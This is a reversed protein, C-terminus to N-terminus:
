LVVYIIRICKYLGNCKTNSDNETPSQALEEGNDEDVQLEESSSKDSDSCSEDSDGSHTHITITHMCSYHLIKMGIRQHTEM